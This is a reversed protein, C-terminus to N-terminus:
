AAQPCSHDGTVLVYRGACRGKDQRMADAVGAATTNLGFGRVLAVIAAVLISAAQGGGPCWALFRTTPKQAHTESSCNKPLLWRTAPRNGAVWPACM